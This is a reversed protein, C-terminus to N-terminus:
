EAALRPRQGLRAMVAGLEVFLATLDSRLRAVGADRRTLATEDMYLARNIEIQLAHRGDYPRGHRETSWGGAYPVNRVVRYGRQVLHREATATLLPACSSGYRDGLVIDPAPDGCGTSPMSHTDVLLCAGHDTLLGDLTDELAGHYPAHVSELRHVAEAWPLKTRYIDRGDNVIRPIVGLGAAVRQSRSGAVSAPRGAYMAPDLDASDRNLDLYVRAHTATLTTAGITPAERIIEDIWADESKRLAFLDLRSAALLSPPYHRGSHPSAVLLASTAGAPRTLIFPPPAM